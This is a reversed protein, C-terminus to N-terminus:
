GNKEQEMLWDAFVPVQFRLSGGIRFHPAGDAVQQSVWRVSFGFHDALQQRGVLPISWDPGKSTARPKRADGINHVTASM